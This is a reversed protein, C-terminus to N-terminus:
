YKEIDHDLFYEPECTGWFISSPFNMVEIKDVSIQNLNGFFDGSLYVLVEVDYKESTSSSISRLDPFDKYMSSNASLHFTAHIKCKVSANFQLVISSSKLRVLNVYPMGSTNCELRFDKCIAYAKGSNHYSDSSVVAEIDISNLNDILKDKIAKFINSEMESDYDEKIMNIIRQAPDNDQFYSIVEPLKEMVDIRESTDAYNKWGEDVSIALIRKNHNEAWKELSLLAIADPFESKKKSSQFPAESRFYMEILKSVDIHTDCKIISAGIRKYFDELNSKAIDMNTRDNHTLLETYDSASEEKYLYKETYKLAKDIQRKSDEIEEALHSILEKDVIESIIIKTSSNKFQDLQKLLGSNLAISYRKFINTDITIFDYKLEKPMPMSTSYIEM